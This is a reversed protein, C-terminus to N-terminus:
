GERRLKEVGMRGECGEERAVISNRSELSFLALYRNGLDGLQFSREKLLQQLLPAAFFFHSITNDWPVALRELLSSLVRCERIQAQRQQWEARMM